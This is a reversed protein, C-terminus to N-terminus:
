DHRGRWKRLYEQREQELEAMEILKDVREVLAILAAAVALTAHNNDPAHEYAQRAQELMDM